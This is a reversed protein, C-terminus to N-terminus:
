HRKAYAMCCVSIKAGVRELPLAAAEITAGTTMVDDVLLIHLGALTQNTLEFIGEVNEWRDFRKRRTQTATHIVRTLGNEVMPKSLEWALGEAFAASQNYGRLKKKKPHLPIPVIVDVEEFYGVQKLQEGHYGGLYKALHAGNKYKVSHLLTQVRSNKKFEFLASAGQLHVRGTMRKVILNDPEEHYLGKPLGIRCYNCLWQEHRFLNQGCAECARPFILSLFDNIFGKRMTM